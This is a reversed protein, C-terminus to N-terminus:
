AFLNMFNQASMSATPTEDTLSFKVFEYWDHDFESNYGIIVFRPIQVKEPLFYEADILDPKIYNSAMEPQIQTPNEFVISGFQKYNGADRYLYEFKLNNESDNMM